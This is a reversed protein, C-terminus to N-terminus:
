SSKCYLAWGKGGCAGTGARTAEKSTSVHSCWRFHSGLRKARLAVAHACRQLSTWSDGRAGQIEEFNM